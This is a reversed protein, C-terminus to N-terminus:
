GTARNRGGAGAKGAEILMEAYRRSGDYDGAWRLLESLIASADLRSEAAGAGDAEAIVQELLMRAGAADSRSLEEALAFMAKVREAPTVVSALRERLVQLKDPAESAGTMTPGKDAYDQGM